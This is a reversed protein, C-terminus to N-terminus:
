TIVSTEITRAAEMDRNPSFLIYLLGRGTSAVWRERAFAALDRFQKTPQMALWPSLHM